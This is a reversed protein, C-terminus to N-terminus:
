SIKSAKQLRQAAIRAAKRLAKEAPEEVRKKAQNIAAAARAV